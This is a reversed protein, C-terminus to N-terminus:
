TLEKTLNNGPASRAPASCDQDEIAHHELVDLHALLARGAAAVSRPLPGSSPGSVSLHRDLPVTVARGATRQLERLLPGTASRVAGPTRRPGITALLVPLALTTLDGLAHEAQQVGPVTGRCVLVVARPRTQAAATRLWSLECGDVITLDPEFPPVPWDAQGRHEGSPRDIVLANGRRGRRWAGSDDVGFETDPVGALGCQAPPAFSVLHVARGAAAADATTVAVTSAGAGGHAGVVAVWTGAPPRLAHATSREPQDVVPQRATQVVRSTPPPPPPASEPRPVWGAPPATGVRAEADRLAQLLEALSRMRGTKPDVDGGLLVDHDTLPM